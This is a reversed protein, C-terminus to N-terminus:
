ELTVKEDVLRERVFGGIPVMRFHAADLAFEMDVHHRGARNKEVSLVVWNRMAEAKLPNYILHERSIIDYKNNLMLGIDAEYQLASSGRLDSLRMRKVKLGPRDSAAIAIVQIGMSMALDKLGQALYTTVETEPQLSSSEVPVKQLYDVVLLLEQLGSDLAERVWQRIHELTSIGGGAKVLILRDAYAKMADLLPAYRPIHGLKTLLGVGDSSELALDSLKRLTLARDAQGLEASELCILRLMLHVRDHEYCVYMAGADPHDRVVNRAVQLGFITKGVGFPGGVVMLEGRRLGGNLVDDLPTFGTALPRFRTVEGSATQEETEQMVQALTAPGIRERGWPSAWQGSEM